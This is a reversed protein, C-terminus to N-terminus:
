TLSMPDVKPKERDLSFLAVSSAHRLFSGISTFPPRQEAFAFLTPSVRAVVDSGRAAKRMVQAVFKAPSPLPEGPEAREALGIEFLALASRSGYRLGRAIEKQLADEFRVAAMLGTEPDIELEGLDTVPAEAAKKRKGLM